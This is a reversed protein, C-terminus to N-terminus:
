KRKTAKLLLGGHSAGGIKRDIACIIDSAKFAMRFLYRGLASTEHKQRRERKRSIHLTYLEPLYMHVTMVLPNIMEEITISDFGSSEFLRKASEGTYAREHGWVRDLFPRFRRGNMMGRFASIPDRFSPTEVSVDAITFGSAKQVRSMERVSKRDDPVHELVQVSFVRDFEGDRFPLDQADAIVFHVNDHVNSRKCESISERSVDMSVLNAGLSGLIRGYEGKGSGIELVLLDKRLDLARITKRIRIRYAPALMKYSFIGNMLGTIRSESINKEM